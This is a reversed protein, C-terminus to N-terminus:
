ELLSTPWKKEHMNSNAIRTTTSSIETNMRTIVRFISVALNASSGMSFSIPTIKFFIKDYAM